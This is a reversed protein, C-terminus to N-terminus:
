VAGELLKRWTDRESQTQFKMLHTVGAVVFRFAYVHESSDLDLVQLKQPLQLREREETSTSELYRVLTRNVADFAFYRLRWGNMIREKRYYLNATIRVAQIPCKTYLHYQECCSRCLFRRQTNPFDRAFLYNRWLFQPDISQLIYLFSVDHTSFTELKAHQQVWESIQQAMDAGKMEALYWMDSSKFRMIRLFHEAFHRNQLLMPEIPVGSWTSIRHSAGPNECLLHIVLSPTPSQDSPLLSVAVQFLSPIDSVITIDQLPRIENDAQRSETNLDKSDCLDKSAHSSLCDIASSPPSKADLLLPAKTCFQLRSEFRVCDTCLINQSRIVIGKFDAISSCVIDRLKMLGMMSIETSRPHRVSIFLSSEGANREVCGQFAIGEPLIEFEAVFINRSLFLGSRPVDRHRCNAYLASTIQGFLGRPLFTLQLEACHTAVSTSPRSPWLGIGPFGSPLLAPFVEVAGDGLPFSLRFSRFTSLIYDSLGPNHREFHAKLEEVYYVGVDFKSRIFTFVQLFIRLLFPPYCIVVNRLLDSRKWWVVVGMDHLFRLLLDVNITPSIARGIAAVEEFTATPITRSRGLTEIAEKLRIFSLPISQNVHPLILATELMAIKLEDMGEGTHNSVLLFHTFILSQQFPALVSRVERLARDRAGEQQLSPHDIKTGVVIVRAGPSISAIMSAWNVIKSKRPGLAADWVLLVLAGASLFFPHTVQFEDQGGFDWVLCELRVRSTQLIMPQHAIDAGVTAIRKTDCSSQYRNHHAPDHNQHQHLSKSLTTKGCEQEGLLMVRVQTWRQTGSNKEQLYGLIESADDTAINSPIDILPNRDVRLIRLKHLNALSPPLSTVQNSSIDLFQLDQLVGIWPPLQSIQNNSVDINKLPWPIRMLIDPIETLGADQMVLKTSPAELVNAVAQTAASFQCDRFRMVRLKQLSKLNPFEKLPNDEAWLEELGQINQLKDPISKLKNNSLNLYKLHHILSVVDPVQSLKNQRLSLRTLNTCLSLSMPLDSLHNRDLTLAKLDSLVSIVQPLIPIQNNSIDISQYEMWRSFRASTLSFETNILYLSRSTYFIPSSKTQSSRLEPWCPLVTIAEPAHFPSDDMSLRKLASLLTIWPPLSTVPNGKIKLVQLSTLHSIFSPIERFSNNSLDLSILSSLQSYSEPLSSLKNRSLMLHRLKSLGVLSQPADTLLSDSLSVSTADAFSADIPLFGVSIRDFDSM